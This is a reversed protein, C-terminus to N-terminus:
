AIYTANVMYIVGPYLKKWLQLPSVIANNNAWICRLGVTLAGAIGLSQHLRLVDADGDHCVLFAFRDLVDVCGVDPPYQQFEPLM